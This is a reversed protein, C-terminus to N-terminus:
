ALDEFVIDDGCFSAKALHFITCDNDWPAKRSWSRAGPHPRSRSMWFASICVFRGDAPITEVYLVCFDGEAIEVQRHGIFGIGLRYRQVSLM